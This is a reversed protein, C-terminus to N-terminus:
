EDLKKLGREVHQYLDAKKADPPPSIRSGSIPQGGSLVAQGAEYQDRTLKRVTDLDFIRNRLAQPLLEDQTIVTPPGLADPSFRSEGM